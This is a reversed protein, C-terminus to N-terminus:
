VLCTTFGPDFHYTTSFSLHGFAGCGRCLVALVDAGVMSFDFFLHLLVSVLSPNQAVHELLRTEQYRPHYGRPAAHGSKSSELM